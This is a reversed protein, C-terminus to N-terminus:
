NHARRDLPWSDTRDLHIGFRTGNTYGFLISEIARSLITRDESSVQQASKEAAQLFEYIAIIYWLSADVSNFEPESGRDPFRNPVMGESVTAAWELLIDRAIDLRGIALCLGRMAIFTDRGWDTFWPYGAIITKGSKKERHVESRDIVRRQDTCVVYADAALHLPTSFVCRRQQEAKRLLTVYEEGDIPLAPPVEAQAEAAVIWVAERASVDWRFEGPSALDETEDLGRAREEMYLVSRYWEPQHRYSGNSITVIRPLDSYPHWILRPLHGDPPFRFASNEHHLAHYDRGSFFPRLILAVSGTADRVRWSLVTMSSGHPVFLEHEIRTGDEIRYIWRPWPHPEFSEIRQAGDPHIVDPTYRQSSLAYIGTSTEAWADYGNVLVVRNTPPTMATLLLAHYRRTRIGAATGSAFGGLGDAELWELHSM